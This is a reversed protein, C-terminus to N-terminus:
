YLIDARLLPVCFSKVLSVKVTLVDMLMTVTFPPLEPV